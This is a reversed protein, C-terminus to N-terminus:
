SPLHGPLKAAEKKYMEKGSARLASINKMGKQIRETEAHHQRSCAAHHRMNSQSKQPRTKGEENTPM